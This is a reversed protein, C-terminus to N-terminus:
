RNGGLMMRLYRTYGENDNMYAVKRWKENLYTEYL